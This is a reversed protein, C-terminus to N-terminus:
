ADNLVFKEFSDTVSLLSLYKELFVLFGCVVRGSPRGGITHFGKGVVVNFPISQIGKVGVSKSIRRVCMHVDHNPM